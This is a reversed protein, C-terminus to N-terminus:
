CMSGDKQGNIFVGIFIPKSSCAEFRDHPSTAFIPLSECVSHLERFTLHPPLLTLFFSFCPAYVQLAKCSLSSPVSLIHPWTCLIATFIALVDPLSKEGAPLMINMM